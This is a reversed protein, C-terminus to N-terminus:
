PFKFFTGLKLSPLLRLSLAFKQRFVSKKLKLCIIQDSMRSFWLLALVKVGSLLLWYERKSNVVGWNAYAILKGNKVMKGLNEPQGERSILAEKSLFM